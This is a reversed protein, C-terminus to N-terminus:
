GVQWSKGAGCSAQFVKRGLVTWSPYSGPQPADWAGPCSSPPPPPQPDKSRGRMSQQSGFQRILFERLSQNVLYSSNRSLPVDTGSRTSALSSLSPLPFCLYLALGEWFSARALCPLQWGILLLVQLAGPLVLGWGGNEVSPPWSRGVPTPSPCFAGVGCVPGCQARGLQHAEGQKPGEVGFM